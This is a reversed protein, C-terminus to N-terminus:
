ILSGRYQARPLVRALEPWQVLIHKALRLRHCIRLSRSPAKVRTISEIFFTERLVVRGAALVPLSVSTGVGIIAQPRHKLILWISMLFIRSFNYLAAFRSRETFTNLQPIIHVAGNPLGSRIPRDGSENCLYIFKFDSSLGGILRRTQFSHGGGTLIIMIKQKTDSMLRHNMQTRAKFDTM